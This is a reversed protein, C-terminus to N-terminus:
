GTWMLVEGYAVTEGGSKLTMTLERFRSIVYERAMGQVLAKVADIRKLMGPVGNPLFWIKLRHDYSYQSFRELRSDPTDVLARLAGIISRM